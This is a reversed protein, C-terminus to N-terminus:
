LVQLLTLYGGTADSLNVVSFFITGTGMNGRPQFNSFYLQTVRESPVTM